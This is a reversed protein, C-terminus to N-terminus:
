PREETPTDDPRADPKAGDEDDTETVPVAYVGKLWRNLDVDACRRSCFPRFEHLSLKGCIPCPALRTTAPESM